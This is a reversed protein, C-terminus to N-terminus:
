EGYSCDPPVDPERDGWDAPYIGQRVCHHFSSHRWDIVRDVHGHRVPNYHLYNMHAAFDAENRILHEWFRPQWVGGDQRPGFRHALGSLRTFGAKIRGWRSSYDADNQPLTWLAHMHDPLVVWADISFPSQRHVEAVGQRLAAIAKDGALLPRRQATVVTFFYTAGANRARRYNPM